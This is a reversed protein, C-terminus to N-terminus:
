RPSINLRYIRFTMPLSSVPRARIDQGAVLGTGIRCLQWFRRAIYAM